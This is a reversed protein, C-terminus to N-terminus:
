DFKCMKNANLNFIDMKFSDNIHSINLWFDIHFVQIALQHSMSTGKPHFRHQKVVIGLIEGCLTFSIIKAHLPAHSILNFGHLTLNSHVNSFESARFFEFKREPHLSGKTIINPPTYDPGPSGSPTPPTPAPSPIAPLWIPCPLLPWSPWIVPSPPSPLLYSATAPPAPTAPCHCPSPIWSPATLALDHPLPCNSALHPIWSQLGM